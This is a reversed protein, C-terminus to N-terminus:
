LPSIGDAFEFIIVRGLGHALAIMRDQVLHPQGRYELPLRLLRRGNWTIWSIDFDLGYGVWEAERHQPATLEMGDNANAKPAQAPTSNLAIAISGFNTFLNSGDESFSLGSPVMKFLIVDQLVGTEVNYIMIESSGHVFGCALYRGDHSFAVSVCIGNRDPEGQIEGQLEGQLEGTEANWIRVGAGCSGPALLLGNQSWAVAWSWYAEITRELVGTYPDWIRTTNDKSGSAVRRGDPSFVSAHVHDSHGTCVHIIDGTQTDWIRITSDNSGSAILKGDPSFEVCNITSTHGKLIRVLLGTARDWLGVACDVSGTALWKGCPSATIPRIPLTHAALTGQSVKIETDWIRVTVQSAIALRRGDGSFAVSRVWEGAELTQLLSWSGAEVNWIQVIGDRFGVALRQGTPSFDVSSARISDRQFIEQLQGHDVDWIELTAGGAAAVFKGDPSFSISRIIDLDPTLIHRLAGTNVDWTRITGDDGCSAVQSHASVVVCRVAATHGELIRLLKGTQVDWIRVSNDHSGSILMKDDRSFVVSHVLDRHGELTKIVQGTHHSWVFITKTSGSALLTGDRSFALSFVLEIHSDLVRQVAKTKANWIQITTNSSGSAVFQGDPSFAVSIPMAKVGNLIHVHLKWDSDM